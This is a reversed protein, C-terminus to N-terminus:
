IILATGITGYCEGVAAASWGHRGLLVVPEVEGLQHQRGRTGSAQQHCGCRHM